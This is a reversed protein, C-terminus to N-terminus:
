RAEEKGVEIMIGAVILLLGVAALLSAVGAVPRDPQVFADLPGFVLVLIGVDRLTEGALQAVRRRDTM